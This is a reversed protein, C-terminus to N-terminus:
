SIVHISVQSTQDERIQELTQNIQTTQGKIIGVNSMLSNINTAIDGSLLDWTNTVTNDLDQYYTTQELRVTNLTTKLNYVEQCLASSNTQTNKCFGEILTVNEDLSNFRAAMADRDDKNMANTVLWQTDSYINDTNTKIVPLYQVLYSKIDDNLTKVLNSVSSNVNTLQTQIANKASGIDANLSVNVATLRANLDSSAVTLQNSLSNNIENSLDALNTEATDIRVTLRAEVDNMLGTVSANVNLLQSNLDAKANALQDALSRNVSNMLSALTTETANVKTIISTNAGALQNTITIQVNTLKTELNGNVGFLQNSVSQNINDMLNNLNTQAANINATMNQQANLVTGTVSANVNVLRADMNLIDADVNKIFNLAPNVHFSQSTAITKDTGYRCTVQQEYTGEVDPISDYRYWNGAVSSANMPQNSVYATKNPYYISASCSDVSFASGKYDTISIITAAKESSGVGTSSWYETHSVWNVTPTSAVNAGNVYVGVLLTIFVAGILIIVTKANV